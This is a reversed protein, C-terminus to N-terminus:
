SSHLDLYEKFLGAVESPLRRLSSRNMPKKYKANERISICPYYNSRERDTISSSLLIAKEFIRSKPSGIVVVQDRRKHIFHHNNRLLVQKDQSLNDSYGWEIVCDVVFYAFFYLGDMITNDSSFAAYFTLIDGNKIELLSSYNKERTGNKNYKPSGYTFTTFEPDNHITQDPPDNTWIKRPLLKQPLYPIISNNGWKFDRYTLANCVILEDQKEPIPIFMFSRNEFIRSRFGGGDPTTDAGVRLLYHEM